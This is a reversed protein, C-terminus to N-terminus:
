VIGWGGCIYVCVEQVMKGGGGGIGGVGVHRRM